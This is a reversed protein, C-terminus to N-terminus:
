EDKFIKISQNGNKDITARYMGKTNFPTAINGKSDIAIVGGTGNFKSLKDIVTNASLELDLGGYAMRAHIDYAIALRMFFEGQGTGSVACTKNNAYTGAGIIPSDGVRGYLKNTLGGTSTGAALNGNKDLAVAGVTGKEIETTKDKAMKGKAKVLSQWRRETYFYFQSVRELSHLAAFEEAGAGILMVHPSEDKILRALKIPNKIHKIGSVAGAQLTQGDMISADLENTGDSTFVAGKGANFLPSDELVVIAREVAELSTGGQKLINYGAQIAEKLKEKYEIELQPTFKSRELTGAGGHIAIAIPSNTSDGGAQASLGPSSFLSLISLLLILSISKKNIIKVLFTLHQGHTNLFKTMILIITRILNRPNLISSFTIFAYSETM